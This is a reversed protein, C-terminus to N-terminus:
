IKWIPRNTGIITLPISNPSGMLNEKRMKISGMEEKKMIQTIKRKKNNIITMKTM